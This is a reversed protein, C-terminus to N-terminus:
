YKISIGVKKLSEFLSSFLILKLKQKQYHFRVLYLLSKIPELIKLIVEHLRKVIVKVIAFLFHKSFVALM